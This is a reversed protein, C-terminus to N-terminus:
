IFPLRENSLRAMGMEEDRGERGGERWARGQAGGGGGEQGEGGHHKVVAGFGHSRRNMAPQCYRDSDLVCVTSRM